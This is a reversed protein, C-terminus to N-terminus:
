RGPSGPHKSACLVRCIRTRGVQGGLLTKDLVSRLHADVEEPKLNTRYTSQLSLVNPEKRFQYKRQEHKDEEWYYYFLRRQFSELIDEWAAEPLGPRTCALRLSERTALPAEGGGLSYLLVTTALGEALRGWGHERDLLQAKALESGSQSAIDTGIVSEWQEDGSVHRAMGRLAGHALDVDQCQILADAISTRQAWLQQLALALFRLTDRTEQFGTRAGWGEYLVSILEPHFPYSAAILREYADGTKEAPLGGLSAYLERYAAATDAARQGDVHEFLRRRVVEHIESRQVPRITTATRLVHENLRALWGPAEDSLMEERGATLSVVMVAGPVNNVADTLERLFAVTQEALSSGSAVIGKVKDVYHLTEDFLIACPGVKRLLTALLADGCSQLAADNEAVLAFAEAGGLQYAMEGWLTRIHTGDVTRGLPNLHTGAMVAVHAAPLRELGANGALAAVEAVAEEPHALTHYVTLESHSKGGGFGTQLWLM